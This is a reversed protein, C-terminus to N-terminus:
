SKRDMNGMIGVMCAGVLQMCECDFYHNPVGTKQVYIYKEKNTRKDLTRQLFESNLQREYEEDFDNTVWSKGKGDRLYTLINKISYNSWKYLPCTKGQAAKGLNPDGRTEPSYLKKTGDPHVFDQADWGKLAVWSLWVKKGGVIGSHSYECCKAYVQTAFNGSDIMVNQDRIKNEEQIKRLEEFSPARGYKRLRSEGNKNWSRIVYWFETFNNQCDITMFTYDGWDANPDYDMTLIKALTMQSQTSWPKALRKQYFEQLPIKNGEYTLADKAQLYEICLDSLAVEINAMSNWRYSLVKPNGNPKTNLYLGHDNMYRRNQPVDSYNHKCSPNVCEYRATKGAERYNWRGEPCTIDNKDWIVGGFTGDERKHNFDLVQDKGCKACKFGWEWVVGDDFEKTWDDSAVGGQSLLLIKSNHQFDITRTKMESIFGEDWLWVEDCCIFKYGISQLSRIKASSLNLTMHPFKFCRKTIAFRDNTNIMEKVPKCGRLLPLMRLDSMKDIMEDSSQLWLFPGSNCGITHLMWIEGLLTKCCRPSAMVNVQRIRLDKLAKFPEILFKSRNVNFKGPISYANHLDVYDSAWEYIERNDPPAFGERFPQLVINM